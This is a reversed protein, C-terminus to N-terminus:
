KQYGAMIHQASGFKKMWKQYDSCSVTSAPSLHVICTVSKGGEPSNGMYDAYYSTLSQASVLAELHSETPCDVLLVIPGPVSPGLVDSPHVQQPLYLDGNLHLNLM